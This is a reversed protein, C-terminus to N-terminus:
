EIYLYEVIARRTYPLGPKTMGAQISAFPCIETM